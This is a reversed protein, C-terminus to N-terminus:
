DFASASSVYRHFEVIKVDRYQEKIYKNNDGFAAFTSREPFSYSPSYSEGPMRM